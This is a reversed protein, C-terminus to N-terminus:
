TSCCSTAPRPSPHGLDADAAAPSFRPSRALINLIVDKIRVGRALFDACAADLGRLWEGVAAYM